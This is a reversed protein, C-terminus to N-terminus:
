GRALAYCLLVAVGIYMASWVPFYPLWTAASVGMIFAAIFGAWRAFRSNTIVLASAVLLVVGVSLWLWAYNRLASGVLSDQLDDPLAGKYRFAWIADMIRMVGALGLVFSAFVLWGAHGRPEPYERAEVEATTM